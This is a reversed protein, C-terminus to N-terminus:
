EVKFAAHCAQCRSSVAGLSNAVAKWGEPDPPVSIAEAASAFEAAARHMALGMERFELPLYRGFGKGAGAELEDRAVQAAHKFDGAAVAAIVNNLADMHHSMHELFEARMEPPMKIVVRENATIAPRENAAIAPSPGVIALLGAAALVVVSFSASAAHETM